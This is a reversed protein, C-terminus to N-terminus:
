FLSDNKWSGLVCDGNDDSCYGTECFCGYVIEETCLESGCQNFCSNSGKCVQNAGSCTVDECSDQAQVM